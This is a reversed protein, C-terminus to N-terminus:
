RRTTRADITAPKAAIENTDVTLAADGLASRSDCVISEVAPEAVGSLASVMVEVAGHSLTSCYACKRM